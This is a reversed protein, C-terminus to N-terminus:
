VSHELTYTGADRGARYNRNTQTPNRNVLPRAYLPHTMSRIEHEITFLHKGTDPDVIDKFRYQWQDSEEFVLGRENLWAHPGGFDNLYIQLHHGDYEPLPRDTERFILDQNQGVKVRALPGQTDSEVHSICKIVDRYFRAIGDATGVPVTFEVYPMGLSMVGFRAEDPEYIRYQNGWPCPTEVYLDSSCM